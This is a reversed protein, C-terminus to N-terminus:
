CCLSYDACRHPFTKGPETSARPQTIERPQHDRSPRRNHAAAEYAPNRGRALAALQRDLPCRPGRGHRSGPGAFPCLAHEFVGLHASDRPAKCGIYFCLHAVWPARALSTPRGNVVRDGEQVRHLENMSRGVWRKCGICTWPQGAFRGRAGWAFGAKRLIPM